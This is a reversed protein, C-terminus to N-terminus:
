LGFINGVYTVSEVDGARFRGNGLYEWADCSDDWNPNEWEVCYSGDGRVTYRGQSVYKTGDCITEASVRGGITRYQHRECGDPMFAVVTTNVAHTEIAAPDTVGMAIDDQVAMPAFDLGSFLADSGAPQGMDPQRCGAAALLALAAGLMRLTM